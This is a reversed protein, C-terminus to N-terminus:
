LNIQPILKSILDGTAEWNAGTVEDQWAERLHEAKLFCVEQLEALVSALNKSDILGELIELRTDANSKLAVDYPSGGATYGTVEIAKNGM